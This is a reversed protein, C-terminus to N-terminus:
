LAAGPEDVGEAPPQHELLSPLLTASGVRDLAFTREGTRLHCWGTLLDDAFRWPDVTRETAAGGRSSPFYTLHLQRREAIARDFLDRLAWPTVAREAATPLAPSGPRAAVEEDSRLSIGGTRLAQALVDPRLKSVAVTPAVARLGAQPVAVARDLDAADEAVVVSGAAEVEVPRAHERPPSSPPPLDLRPQGPEAPEEDSPEEARAAAEDVEVMHLWGDVAPPAPHVLGDAGVVVLARRQLWDLPEPLLGRGWWGRGILAEVALPGEAALRGFAARAGAPAEDLVARLREPDSLARRLLGGAAPRGTPLDTSGASGGVGLLRLAERLDVLRLRDLQDSM